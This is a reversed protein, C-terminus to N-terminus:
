LSSQKYTEPKEGWYFLPEEHEYDDKIGSQLMRWRYKTWCKEEGPGLLKQIEKKTAHGRKKVYEICRDRDKSSYNEDYIYKQKIDEFFNYYSEGVIGWDFRKALEINKASNAGDRSSEIASEIKAIFDKGNKRKYIYAYNDHTMEEFTLGSPVVCNKGCALAETIAVCWTEYDSTNIVVDCDYILKYYEDGHVKKVKIWDSNEKVIRILKKNKLVNNTSFDATPDTLILEFDQRKGRLKILNELMFIPNKFTQLRNPFLLKFKGQNQKQPDNKRIKDLDIGNYLKTLEPCPKDPFWTNWTSKVMEANYDCLTTNYQSFLLGELQRFEIRTDPITVYKKALCWHWRNIIPVLFHGWKLDTSRCLAQSLNNTFEPLANFVVDYDAGWYNMCKEMPRFDFQYPIMRRVPSMPSAKFTVNHSNLIPYTAKIKNVEEEAIFDPYCLYFHYNENRKLIEDIMQATQILGSDCVINKSASINLWCLVRM